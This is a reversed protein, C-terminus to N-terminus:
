GISEGEFFEDAGGNGILVDIGAEGYLQDAYVSGYITDDGAGGNAIVSSLNGSCDIFDNGSGGSIAADVTYGSITITDDGAHGHATGRFSDTLSLVDDGAGAWVGGDFNLTIEDDGDDGTISGGISGAGDVSLVSIYDAGGNGHVFIYSVGNYTTGDLTFAEDSMSVSIDIVDAAQDGSVEYFGPYMESVTVSFHRRTELTEIIM